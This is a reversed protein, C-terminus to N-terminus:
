VARRVLPLLARLRRDRLYLGLWIAVGIAAQAFVPELLRAHTAIAGGMYGTLLVAGLVATRPLVYLLASVIEVIGIPIALSPPWQIKEFGEIMESSNTLKMTGSFVLLAAAAITLAWGARRSWPAPM